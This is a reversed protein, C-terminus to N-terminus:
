DSQCFNLVDLLNSGHSVKKMQEAQVTLDPKSSVAIEYKKIFDEKDNTNFYVAFDGLIERFPPIDSALVKSNNALAELAINPCAEVQSSLIVLRAARYFFKMEATSLNVKFISEYSKASYQKLQGLYKTDAEDGAFAVKANPPLKVSEIYKLLAHFKKYKYYSGPIFIIYDDKRLNGCREPPSDNNKHLSNIIHYAVYIDKDDKGITKKLFDKVYYSVTVIKDARQLSHKSPLYKLLLNLRMRFPVDIKLFNPIAMNRMALITKVGPVKYAIHTPAYVYDPKVERIIRPLNLVQWIYSTTGFSYNSQVAYIRVNEPIHIAASRLLNNAVMNVLFTFRYDHLSATESLLNVLYTMQGGSKANITNILVNRM